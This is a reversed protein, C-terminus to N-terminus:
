AWERRYTLAAVRASGDTATEGCFGLNEFGASSLAQRSHHNEEAVHAVVQAAGELRHALWSVISIAATAVGRGRAWPATWYGITATSEVVDHIGTVGVPDGTLSDVIAFAHREGANDIVFSQAHDLTYPEPIQTWRQIDTDQCARTIWNADDPLLPRLRVPLMEFYIQVILTDDDVPEGVRNWYELHSRRFDDGNLDGEGEALAFEDPVEAFRCLGVRTVRLTAIHTGSDDLMALCEGVIEITESEREYEARTTATAKKIGRLVLDNLHARSAGPTGFEISRLGDVVPFTM